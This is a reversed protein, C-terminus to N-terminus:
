DGIRYLNFSGVGATSNTADTITSGRKAFLELVDNASLRVLGSANVSSTNHGDTQRIYSHAAVLSTDVSNNVGLAVIPAVRAGLSSLEVNFSVFYLGASPITIGSASVTFGTENLLATTNFASVKAYTASGNFDVSVFTVKCALPSELAGVDSELTTARGELATIDSQATTVDSQLTTIDSEATTVDSQLTTIDSQATTIDSQATTIDSQATTVDSQLTTIDSQATEIDTATANWIAPFTRPDAGDAPTLGGSLRTVM